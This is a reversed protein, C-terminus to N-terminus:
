QGKLHAYSPDSVKLTPMHHTLQITEGTTADITRGQDDLILPTPRFAVFLPMFCQYLCLLIVMIIMIYCSLTNKNTQCKCVM